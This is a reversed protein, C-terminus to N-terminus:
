FWVVRRSLFWPFPVLSGWRLVDGELPALVAESNREFVLARPEHLGDVLPEGLGRCFARRVLWQLEVGRAPRAALFDALRAHAQDARVRARELDRARLLRRDHPSLVRRLERVWERPHREAAQSVYSAVDREPDRLSVLFFLAPRQAGLEELRLAHEAVYSARRSSHRDGDRAPDGAAGTQQGIESREIEPRDIEPRHGAMERTYGAIDWERNVRVIQLDAGAAELAGLLALFRGRKGDESLWAYSATPVAFAAWGDDLGGAGFVCNGYVLSIPPRM